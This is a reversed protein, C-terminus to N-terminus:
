LDDDEDDGESSFEGTENDEKSFKNLYFNIIKNIAIIEADPIDIYFLRKAENESDVDKPDRIIKQWIDRLAAVNALVEIPNENDNLKEYRRETIEIIFKNADSIINGSPEFNNIKELKLQLDKIIKKEFEEDSMEPFFCQRYTVQQYKPPLKFNEKKLLDINEKSKNKRDPINITEKEEKQAGLTDETNDENHVQEKWYQELLQYEPTGVIRDFFENNDNKEIKPLMKESEEEFFNAGQEISM